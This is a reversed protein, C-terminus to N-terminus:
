CTDLRQVKKLTAVDFKGKLKKDLAAKDRAQTREFAEKQADLLAQHEADRKAQERKRAAEQSQTFDTTADIKDLNDIFKGPKVVMEKQKAAADAVPDFNQHGDGLFTCWEQWTIKSDGNTDIAQLIISSTLPAAAAPAASSSESPSISSQSTDNTSDGGVNVDLGCKERLYVELIEYDAHISELMTALEMQDVEKDGNTDIQYFLDKLLKLRAGADLGKRKEEKQKAAREVVRPPPTYVKNETRAVTEQENDDEEEKTAHVVGEEGLDKTFLLSIEIEGAKKHGKGETTLQYWATSENGSTAILPQLPITCVGITRGAFGNNKLLVKLEVPKNQTANTYRIFQQQSKWKPRDGGDTAEETRVTTGELVMTCLPDQIGMRAVNTLNKAQKVVIRLRGSMAPIYQVKVTASSQGMNETGSHFPIQLQMSKSAAVTPKVILQQLVEQTISGSALVTDKGFMGKKPQVLWVTMLSEGAEVAGRGGDNITHPLVVSNLVSGEGTTSGHQFDFSMVQGAGAAGDTTVRDAAQCVRTTRNKGPPDLQIKLKCGRNQLDQLELPVNNVSVIEVHLRGDALGDDDEDEGLDELLTTQGEGRSIGDDRGEMGQFPERALELHITGTTGEGKKNLLPWNKLVIKEYPPSMVCDPLQIDCKAIFANSMSGKDKITLTITPSEGSFEGDSMPLPFYANWSPAHAQDVAPPTSVQSDQGQIEITVQSLFLFM